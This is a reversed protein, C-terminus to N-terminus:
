GAALLTCMYIRVFHLLYYIHMIYLLTMCIIISYLIYAFPHIHPTHYQTQLPAFVRNVPHFWLGIPLSTLVSTSPRQSKKRYIRTSQTRSATHPLQVSHSYPNHIIQLEFRSCLAESCTFLYIRPARQTSWVRGCEFPLSLLFMHFGFINVFVLDFTQINTIQFACVFLENEDQRCLGAQRSNTNSDYTQM